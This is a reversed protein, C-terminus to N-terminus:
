KCGLSLKETPYYSGLITEFLDLFELSGSLPQQSFLAFLLYLAGVRVQFQFKTQLFDSTISYASDLFVPVEEDELLYFVLSFNMERYIRAFDQFRVSDTDIFNTFLSEVDSRFGSAELMRLDSVCNM